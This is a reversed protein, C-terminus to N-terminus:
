KPSLCEIIEGARVRADHVQKVLRKNEYELRANASRLGSWTPKRKLRENEAQLGRHEGRLRNHDIRLRRLDGECARTRLDDMMGPETNASPWRATSLQAKLRENEARLKSYGQRTANLTAERDDGEKKLRENEYELRGNECLFQTNAEMNTEANRLANDRAGEADHIQGAADVLQEHCQRNKEKLRENEARLEDAEKTYIFRKRPQEAKKLDDALQLVATKGDVNCLHGEAIFRLLGPADKIVWHGKSDPKWEAYQSLCDAM